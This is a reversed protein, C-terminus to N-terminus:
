LGCSEQQPGKVNRTAHVSHSQYKATVIEHSCLGSRIKKSAHERPLLPANQFIPGEQQFRLFHGLRVRARGPSEGLCRCLLKFLNMKWQYILIDFKRRTEMPESFMELARSSLFWFLSLYREGHFWVGHTDCFSATSSTQLAVSVFQNLELQGLAYGKLGRGRDKSLVGYDTFHIGCMSIGACLQLPGVMRSRKGQPTHKEKPSEAALGLELCVVLRKRITSNTKPSVLIVDNQWLEASCWWTAKELVSLIPNNRHLTVQWELRTSLM